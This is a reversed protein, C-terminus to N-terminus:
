RRATKKAPEERRTARAPARRGAQGLSKKLAEMLDVVEAKARPAPAEITEGKAKAKILQQIRQRV